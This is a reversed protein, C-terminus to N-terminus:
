KEGKVKRMEEFAAGGKQAAEVYAAMANMHKMFERADIKDDVIWAGKKDMAKLATNVKLASNKARGAWKKEDTKDEGKRSLKERPTELLIKAAAIKKALDSGIKFGYHTPLDNDDYTVEYTGAKCYLPKNTGLEYFRAWRGDPLKSRELWALAAPIPQLYKKEGTAQWLDLLAQMAGESEVSSVAPPEFKRAWAPEMERNYQQAWAAQPEPLQALLLFDGLRLAAKLFREDKELEHARLLVGMVHMLNGDNLTYHRTYDVKPFTRSWEAPLKAKTVPATADAPGDYHQGWGGNPAQAGLLGDLGFQLAARLAADDKCADTHSLELLFMLPAQTKNDDLSSNGHRGARDTDGGEVDRRFHYRSSKRPNFDFDSDWGGSALQCWMLAQAAEKAGQLFLKDGTARYAKLMAMGVSPTGPPQMMILTPTARNEGQAISMDQPWQWAYGGAFSVERRFFNAAKKMAITVVAPDPYPSPRPVPKEAPKVDAPKAKAPTAGDAPKAKAPAEEVAAYASITFAISPVLLSRLKMLLSLLSRSVASDRHAQLSTQKMKCRRRADALWTGHGAKGGYVAELSREVLAAREISRDDPVQAFVEDDAPGVVGIRDFSVRQSQAFGLHCQFPDSDSPLRELIVKLCRIVTIGNHKQFLHHFLILRQTFPGNFEQMLQNESADIVIVGPAIAGHINANRAGRVRRWILNQDRFQHLSEDPPILLLSWGQMGDLSGRAHVAVKHLNMGEDIAVTTCRPQEHVQFEHLRAVRGGDQRYFAPESVVLRQFCIVDFSAAFGEDFQHCLIHCFTEARVIV